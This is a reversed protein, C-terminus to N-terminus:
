VDGECSIDRIGAQATVRLLDSLEPLVLAFMGGQVTGGTVANVALDGLTSLAVFRVSSVHDGRVTFFAM